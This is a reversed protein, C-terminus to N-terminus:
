KKVRDIPMWCSWDAKSQAWAAASTPYYVRAGGGGEKQVLATCGADAVKKAAATGPYAGAPKRHAGLWVWQTSGPVCTVPTFATNTHTGACQGLLPLPNTVGVLKQSLTGVTAKLTAHDPGPALIAVCATWRAGAGIQQKTPLRWTRFLGLPIAGTYGAWTKLSPCALSTKAQTIQKEVAPDTITAPLAILAFVQGQHPSACDIATAETLNRVSPMVLCTGLSPGALDSTAKKSGGGSCGAVALSITLALATLGPWRPM